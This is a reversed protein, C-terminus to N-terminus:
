VRYKNTNNTNIIEIGLAPQYTFLDISSRYWIYIYPISTRNIDYIIYFFFFGTKTIETM